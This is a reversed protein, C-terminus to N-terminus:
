PIDFPNNYYQAGIDLWEAILRLEDPTLRGAHTGTPDFINFFRPSSRAGNPSMSPTVTVTVMIPIPNGMGDLVQNGDADTVFLPNGMGDTAQVQRDELNGSMGVEQENDNFLLERYSNFHAAQDPSAGDTLDLQADPVKVNMMADVPAHCATCTDPGRDVGWIPHIHTEYNIVIRCAATWPQCGASIPAPTSLNTYLYSFSADPARMAAVADTWVDDYIVDVSPTLATPDVRTRTEAMTEGFDAFFTNVTNTFPVGTAPAGQNISPAEANRRGHPLGNAHNHCGNCTRTEGPRLQLWNQHRASTRRGNKDLISIIFPVNAPVKVKVSGDPEIPAYGLIERMLQSSNRGYATGPVNKIDNDPIGVAKVLRLFRAPRQDATTLAPDALATINPAATDTGDVDYVSKIHLIGVNDAVLTADLTQDLLVPPRGQPRAAVVDTYAIGEVPRVVPVQTNNDMDYIYIGYLPPAPVPNPAALRADTCPVIQSNELLRCQTWTVIARNTGDWLPFFSGFRGGQSPLTDTRVANATSSTQAPGTLIGQQSAVPQNNDIYNQVDITVIDGGQDTATVPRLLVMVRGDPTPKPQMFQVTSNNTGTLHSHAGYLIQLDTGDPNMTYLNIGNSSGMNDWRSFLIRGDNMVVPDFDHSQNYSIQRINTGDAEMIHLVMAFDRRDEDLPSYQPKGEDLQIAKTQRQLTSSFVIRGDPLYHPTVHQGDEALPDSAIVRYLDDTTIDYEYVNWTPQDEPAAGQIDPMRLSFLLKTGDYSMEVDRVDGQGGTLRGTINREPSSPSALDRYYLDAGPNFATVDLLNSTAVDDAPRKVYAIAYDQVVPDPSQGSGTGGGGCGQLGLLAAYLIGLAIHLSPKFM